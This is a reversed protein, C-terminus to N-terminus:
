NRSENNRIAESCELEYGCIESSMRRTKIKWIGESVENMRYLVEGKKLGAIIHYWIDVASYAIRNFEFRHGEINMIFYEKM